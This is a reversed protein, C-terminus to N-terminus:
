RPDFPPTHKKAHATAAAEAEAYRGSRKWEICKEHRLPDDKDAGLGTDIGHEDCYFLLQLEDDGSCYVGEAETNLAKVLKELVDPYYGQGSNNWWDYTVYEVSGDLEVEVTVEAEGDSVLRRRRASWEKVCERRREKLGFRELRGDFIDAALFKDKLKYVFYINYSM